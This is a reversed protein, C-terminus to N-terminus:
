LFWLGPFGLLITSINKPIYKRPDEYEQWIGFMNKNNGTQPGWKVMNLGLLRQWAPRMRKPDHDPQSNITVVDLRRLRKRPPPPHPSQFIHGCSAHMASASRSILFPAFRLAVYHLSESLVIRSAINGTVSLRRSTRLRCSPAAISRNATSPPRKDKGRM